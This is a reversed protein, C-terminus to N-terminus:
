TINQLVPNKLALLRKRAKQGADARGEAAGSAGAEALKKVKEMQSKTPLRFLHGAALVAEDPGPEEFMVADALGREVAQGATLWTEHEMMELVDQEAMGTKEMYATCLARDATRLMEATHEMAAHNGSVYSVSVCHVMMLATPSMECYGAMAIVSAASCAEGMIYIKLGCREKATRLLTYIESGADIVGGPSNIYVELEEGDQAMDLVKSVDRPCTSDEEFYDYYWKYDNPILRGRIDIRAM